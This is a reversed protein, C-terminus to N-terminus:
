LKCEYIDSHFALAVRKERTHLVVLYFEDGVSSIDFAVGSPIYRGHETFYIVDLERKGESYKQPAEGKSLRSVTDKVVSFGDREILRILMIDSVARCAFVIPAVACLLAFVLGLILIHGAVYISIIILPVFILLIVGLLVLDQLLGAKASRTLDRKCSERTILNKTEKSM